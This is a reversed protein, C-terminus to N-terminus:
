NGADINKSFVTYNMMYFLEAMKKQVTVKNQKESIYALCHSDM